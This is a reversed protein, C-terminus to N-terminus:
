CAIKFAVLIALLELPNKCGEPAKKHPRKCFHHHIKRTCLKSEVFMSLCEVIKLNIRCFDLSIRCNM